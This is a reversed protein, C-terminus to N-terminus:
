FSIPTIEELKKKDRYRQIHECFGALNFIGDIDTYEEIINDVAMNRLSTKNLPLKAQTRVEDIITKIREETTKM